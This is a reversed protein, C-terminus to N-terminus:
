AGNVGLLGFCEGREVGFSIQDVARFSGNYIKSVDNLLMVDSIRLEEYPTTRIREAEQIVDEDDVSHSITDHGNPTESTTIIPRHMTDGNRTIAVNQVKPKGNILIKLCEKIGSLADYDIILLISFAVISQIAM